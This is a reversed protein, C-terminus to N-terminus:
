NQAMMQNRKSISGFVTEGYNESMSSSYYSFDLEYTALEENMTMYLAEM